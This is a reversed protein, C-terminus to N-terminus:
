PRVPQAQRRIADRMQRETIEIYQKVQALEREFTRRLDPDLNPTKLKEQLTLANRALQDRQQRLAQLQMQAANQPALQPGRLVEAGNQVGDQGLGSRAEGGAAVGLRDNSPTVLRARLWPLQGLMEADDDLEIGPLWSAELLGSEVPKQDTQPPNAYERSRFDWAEDRIQRDMPQQLSAFEGLKVKVEITAGDREVVLPVVDDPDHAVIIRRLTQQRDIAIGDANVIRDNARLVDFANFGRKPMEVLAGRTDPLNRNFQIGMAGRPETEFRHRAVALLRTRQELSLPEKRLMAELDKLAFPGDQIRESATMRTKFAPSGLDILLATLTPAPQPAAQEAPAPAADQAHAVPSALLPCAVLGALVALHM